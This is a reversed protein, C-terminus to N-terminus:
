SHSLYKWKILRLKRMKWLWPKSWITELSRKLQLVKYEDGFDRAGNLFGEKRERMLIILCLVVTFFLSQPNPKMDLQRIGTSGLCNTREGLLVEIHAIWCSFFFITIGSSTPCYVRGKVLMLCWGGQRPYSIAMLIGISKGKVGNFFVMLLFILSPFSPICQLICM